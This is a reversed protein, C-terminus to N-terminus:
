RLPLWVSFTSGQGPQSQVSITGRHAEVLNKAISLGIGTGGTHRSRSKDGRYFREFIYPLDQSSIGQGTDAITIRVGEGEERTSVRVRGKQYNYKIGNNLINELVQGIRREDVLALPLGRDLDTEVQIEKEAIERSFLGIKMRRPAGRHMPSERSFLMIKMRRPAGRHMPSEKEFKPLVEEVLVNLDVPKKELSLKGSEARSLEQLDSILTTLRETEAGIRGLIDQDPKKVGDLISEVYGRITTLPTRFEHAIDAVLDRRMKEQKALDNAMINFSQALAGLEDQSDARVRQSLDGESISRTVRIMDQLPRTISRALYLSIVIALALSILAVITISNRISDLFQKELGASSPDVVTIPSSMPGGQGMMGGTGGGMMEMMRRHGPMRGGTLYLTGIQKGQDTLLPIRATWVQPEEIKQGVLEESSSAVVTNSRDVVVIHDGMMTTLGSIVEQVEQWNGNKLYSDVLFTALSQSRVEAGRRLYNSFQSGTIFGLALSTLGVTVLVVVLFSVLLKSNLTRLFPM